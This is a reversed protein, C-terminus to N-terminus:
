QCVLKISESKNETTFRAFYLGKNYLQFYNKTETGIMESILIKGAVDFLEFKGLQNESISVEIQNGLIRADFITKHSRKYVSKIESYTFAGNNDIQKLRYFNEGNVPNKDITSYYITQTSNNAGTFTQIPIFNLDNASRELIFFDNNTETATAWKIEVSNEDQLSADFYLLEVPLPNLPGLSGIAFPSFSTVTNSTITGNSFSGTTSLKGESVWNTGDYKAVTLTAFDNITCTDSNNLSSWTLTATVNSTGVVRNLIWYDCATVHDLPSTPTGTYTTLPNSDFYQATFEDTVLTPASISIPQYHGNDGIPFKISTNGIKKVPGDVYSLDSEATSSAGAAMIFLNSVDSFIVGKSFTTINDVTIPRNLTVSNSLKNIILKYIKLTGSGSISQPNTGRLSLTPAGSYIFSGSADLNGELIYGSSDNQFTSGTRIILNGFIQALAGTRKDYFKVNGTGTGGIDLNGRITPPSISGKFQSVTSTADWLPVFSEVVFNGYYMGASLVNPNAPSNKRIIWSTNALIASITGQYGDRWRVSSANNNKVFTGNTNMSWSSGTSFTASDTGNYHRFEGNVSLDTGSGNAVTLSGGTWSLIAGSNVVVQDMTLAAAITVLHPSQITIIGDASTPAAAAANWGLSYKQWTSVDGWNGSTISRYDGNSQSRANFILLVVFIAIFIIKIKEIFTVRHQM